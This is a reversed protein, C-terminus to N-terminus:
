GGFTKLYAIVDARDADKKLGPFAMKTKPIVAKPKKLFADLTEPSWVLGEDIKAKMAKSYKFKPALGAKADVVGNLAPGVGSKAGDGIRHCAKCKKKFVKEGAAADGDALSPGPLMLAGLVLALVGYRKM